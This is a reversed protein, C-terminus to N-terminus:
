GLLGLMFEKDPKNRLMHWTLRKYKNAENLDGYQATQIGNVIYEVLYDATPPHMVNVFKMNEILPCYCTDQYVEQCFLATTFPSQKRPMYYGNAVLAKYLHSKNKVHMNFSNNEM